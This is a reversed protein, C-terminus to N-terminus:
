ATEARKRFSALEAVAEARAARRTPARRRRRRRPARGRRGVEFKACMALRRDLDRRSGGRPRRGPPGRARRRPPRAGVEAAGAEAASADMVVDGDDNGSLALDVARAGPGAEEAAAPRRTDRARALARM